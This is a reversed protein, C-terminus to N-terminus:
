EAYDIVWRHTPNGYADKMGTDEWGSFRLHSITGEVADETEIFYGSVENQISAGSHFTEAYQVGYLDIKKEKIAKILEPTFRCSNFAPEYSYHESGRVLQVLVTTEGKHQVFSNYTFLTTILLSLGVLVFAVMRIVNKISFINFTKEEIEEEPEPEFSTELDLMKLKATKEAITTETEQTTTTNNTREMTNTM